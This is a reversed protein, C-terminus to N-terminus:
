NLPITLNAGASYSVAGEGGLGSASLNTSLSFDETAISLGGQM